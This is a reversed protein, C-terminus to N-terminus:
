STNRCAGGGKVRPKIVKDLNAPTDSAQFRDDFSASM